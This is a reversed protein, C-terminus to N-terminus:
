KILNIIVRIVYKIVGGLLGYMILGLYLFMPILALIGFLKLYLPIKNEEQLIYNEYSSDDEYNHEGVLSEGYDNEGQLNYRIVLSAGNGKLPQRLIEDGTKMNKRMVNCCVPMRHNREPYNGTLRHLEGSNIEVSRRGVKQANAFINDIAQQFDLSTPM